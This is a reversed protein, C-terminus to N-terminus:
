SVTVWVRNAGVAIGSPHGGVKITAVVNGTRPDLRAVTGTDYDTVWIAGAGFAIDLSPLYSLRAGFTTTQIVRLTIPDIRWVAASQGYLTPAAVWVSGAGVALASPIVGLDAEGTMRRGASSFRAVTQASSATWVSGASVELDNIGAGYHSRSVLTSSRDFEVIENGTGVWIRNRGAAITWASAAPDRSLEVEGLVGGSRADIRIVTNDSGTAAWMVGDVEVLATAQAGLGITQVVRLRQPDIMSVTGEGGNATWVHGAGLAVGRPTGGIPIVSVVRNRDPDVVALSNSTAVLPGADGRTASVVAVAAGVLVLAGALSILAWRRRRPPAPPRFTERVPRVPALEPDQNLIRRELEQLQPGPELGLQESLTRRAQRYAELADGQRGSAYLARMLQGQLRERLPHDASLQQLEPVLGGSRGERLDLDIRDELVGLRQEELRRRADEAFSEEDLDLLAPGRWLGLAEEFRGERGLREFVHLDLEDPELNFLYGPSRTILREAGLAKRLQSVANQLIKSATAPPRGSWLEDILRDSAIVENPHLLFYALLAQEKGRHLSVPGDGGVIEISGLIRFEM